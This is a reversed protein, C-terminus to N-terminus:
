FQVGSRLATMHKSFLGFNENRKSFEEGTSQGIGSERVIEQKNVEEDTESHDKRSQMKDFVCLLMVLWLSIVGRLICRYM